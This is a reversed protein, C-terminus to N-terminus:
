NIIGIVGPWNLEFCADADKATAGSYTTTLTLTKGNDPTVTAITYDVGDIWITNGVVLNLNMLYKGANTSSTATFDFGKDLTVTASGKTVGVSEETGSLFPCWTAPPTLPGVVLGGVDGGTEAEATCTGAVGSGTATCNASTQCTTGDNNPYTGGECTSGTGGFAYDVSEPGNDPIDEDATSECSNSMGTTSLKYSECRQFHSRYVELSDTCYGGGTCTANTSCTAGANTGGTCVGIPECSVGTQCHSNNYCYTGAGNPPPAVGGCTFGAAFPVYDAVTTDVLNNATYALHAPGYIDIENEIDNAVVWRYISWSKYTGNRLNPFSQLGPTASWYCPGACNPPVQALNDTQATCVGAAGGVGTAVCNTDDACAAGDNNPSTGGACVSLDGATPSVGFPDIKDETFYNFGAKGMKAVNAYGTFIYGMTNANGTIANVVEGTGIARERLGTSNACPLNLPNNNANAPNIGVEQSDDPDGDTRFLNFETTNMTGSLPERLVLTVDTATGPPTSTTVSGNWFLDFAANSSGGGFVCDTTGDYLKALPYGKSDKEFPEVGTKLDIPYYSAKNNNLFFVTPAAGIPITVAAPVTLSTLIPDPQGPLGFNVPQAFTNTGQSTSITGGINPSSGTYGLGLYTKTVLVSNSRDTAFLADEPRIDTMGVNVHADGSGTTGVGIANAILNTTSTSCTGAAGTAFAVCQSSSTCVQGDNNPQSGGTCTLPLNALDAKGDAWLSSPTIVNGAAPTPVIVQVVAGPGSTEQAFYTRVGVTSDESVDTWIDTVGHSGTGTACTYTTGDTVSGSDSTSSNTGIGADTFQIGGAGVASLTFPGLGTFTGNADTISVSDGVNYNGVGSGLYTVVNNTSSWSTLSGTGSGDLSGVWVIWINGLQAFINGGSREDLVNAANKASWHYTCGAAGSNESTIDFYALQDAALGATLFQASSGDGVVHLQCNSATGGIASHNGCSQPCQQDNGTCQGYAAPGLVVIAATCLAALLCKIRTM